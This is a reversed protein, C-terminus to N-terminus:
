SSSSSFNKGTIVKDEISQWQKSITQSQFFSDELKQWIIERMWNISQKQRNKQFINQEEMVQCFKQVSQWIEQIGEQEIASCCTVPPQWHSSRHQFFHIVSKYGLRSVEAQNRNEGDAKTITIADAMEVIGRKIGQLEDGSNALILLLFFDVMSHVATESQGVGVTEVLIVDFGSAECLMMTERTKQTVGGLSTGTPSPRIFAKPNISLKSMRTKDGMISGRSVQSSPDVALVAVKHGQETLFTGFADIFTSKGVGPSGTIGVRVSKAEEPLCRRMIEQAVLHDQPRTSEVMTIARSLVVRNGAKIGEVYNEISM